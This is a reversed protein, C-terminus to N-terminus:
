KNKFQKNFNKMEEEKNFKPRKYPKMTSTHLPKMVEEFAKIGEISTKIKFEKM